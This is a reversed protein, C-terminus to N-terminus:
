NALAKFQITVATGGVESVFVGRIQAYSRNAYDLKYTGNVTQQVDAAELNVWNAGDISGQVNLDISTDKAAITYFVSFNKYGLVNMEASNGPAELIATTILGSNIGAM